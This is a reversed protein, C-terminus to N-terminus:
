ANNSFEHVNTYYINVITVRNTPLNIPSFLGREFMSLSKFLKIQRVGCSVNEAGRTMIM